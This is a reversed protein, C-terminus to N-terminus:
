GLQRLKGLVKATSFSVKASKALQTLFGDNVEASWKLSRERHGIELGM